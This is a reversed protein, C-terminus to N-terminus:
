CLCGLLNSSSSAFYSFPHCDDTILLPLTMAWEYFLSLLKLSFYWVCYQAYIFMLCLSFYLQFFWITYYCTVLVHFTKRSYSSSLNEVSLAATQNKPQLQIGLNQKTTESKMWQQQCVFVQQHKQEEMLVFKKPIQQMNLDEGLIQQTNWVLPWVQLNGFHYKV